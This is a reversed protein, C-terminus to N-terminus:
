RSLAEKLPQPSREWLEAGLAQLQQRISAIARADLIKVNVSGRLAESMRNVHEGLSKYGLHQSAAVWLESAALGKFCRPSDAADLEVAVWVLWYTQPETLEERRKAFRISAELESRGHLAGPDVTITGDPSLVFVTLLTQPAMIEGLGTKLTLPTTMM